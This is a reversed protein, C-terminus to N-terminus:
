HIKLWIPMSRQRVLLMWCNILYTSSVLSFVWRATYETFRAMTVIQPLPILKSLRRITTNWHWHFKMCIGICAAWFMIPLCGSILRVMIKM